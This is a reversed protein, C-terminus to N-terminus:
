LSVKNLTDLIVEGIDKSCNRESLIYNVRGKSTKILSVNYIPLNIVDIARDFHIEVESDSFYENTLLKNSTIISVGKKGNFSNDIHILASEIVGQCGNKLVILFYHPDDPIRLKLEEDLYEAFVQTKRDYSQGLSDDKRNAECGSVLLLTFILTYLLLNM